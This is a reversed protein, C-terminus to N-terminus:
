IQMLTDKFEGIEYTASAKRRQKSGLMEIYLLLKQKCLSLVTFRGMYEYM